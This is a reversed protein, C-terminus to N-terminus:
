TYCVFCYGKFSHSMLQSIGQTHLGGAGGISDGVGAETGEGDFVFERKGFPLNGYICLRSTGDKMAEFQFILESVPDHIIQERISCVNGDSKTAM